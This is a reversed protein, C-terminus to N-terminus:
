RRTPRPPAPFQYLSFSTLSASFARAAATTRGERKGADGVLMGLQCGGGLVEFGLFVVGWGGARRVAGGVGTGTASAGAVELFLVGRSGADLRLAGFDLARASGHDSAAGALRPRRRQRPTTPRPIVRIPRRRRSRRLLLVLLLLHLIQLHLHQLIYIGHQRRRRRRVLRRPLLLPLNSLLTFPSSRPHLNHSPPQQHRAQRKLKM